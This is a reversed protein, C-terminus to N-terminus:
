VVIRSLVALLGEGFQSNKPIGTCLSQQPKKGVVVMAM